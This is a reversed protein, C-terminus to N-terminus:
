IRESYSLHASFGNALLDIVLDGSLEWFVNDQVIGQSFM